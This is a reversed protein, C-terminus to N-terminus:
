AATSMLHYALRPAFRRKIRTRTAELNIRPPSLLAFADDAESEPDAHSPTRSSTAQSTPPASVPDLLPEPTKPAKASIILPFGLARLATRAQPLWTNHENTTWSANPGDGLRQMLIRRLSNNPSSDTCAVKWGLQAFASQIQATVPSETPVAHTIELSWRSTTAHTLFCIRM